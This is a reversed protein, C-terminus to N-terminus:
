DLAVHGAADADPGGRRMRDRENRCARDERLASVREHEHFLRGLAEAPPLDFGPACYIVRRDNFFPQPGTLTHGCSAYQEDVLDDFGVAPFPSAHNLADCGESQM